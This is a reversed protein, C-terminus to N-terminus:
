KVQDKKDQDKKANAQAEAQTRVEQEAAEREADLLDQNAKEAAAKEAAIQKPTRHEVKEYGTVQVFADAQEDTIDESLMGKVHKSFRIGSILEAANPLTCLVKAM